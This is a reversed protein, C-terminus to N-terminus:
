KLSSLPPRFPIPSGSSSESWSVTNASSRAAGSARSPTSLRAAAAKYDERSRGSRAFPTTFSGELEPWGTSTMGVGEGGNAQATKRSRSVLSGYYHWAGGWDGRCNGEDDKEARLLAGFGRPGRRT